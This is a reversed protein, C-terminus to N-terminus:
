FGSVYAVWLDVEERDAEPIVHSLVGQVANEYFEDFDDQDMEEFNISKPIPILEGTVPHPTWNVHGAALKIADLAKVKNDYVPHRQAVFTVLKFFKRLHGLSRIRKITAKLAQGRPMKAIRDRSEDDAGMLAMGTRILLLEAM